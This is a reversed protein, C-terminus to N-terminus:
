TSLSPFCSFDLGVGDSLESMKDLDGAVGFTSGLLCRLNDFGLAVFGSSLGAASLAGCFGGSVGVCGGFTILAHACINRSSPIIIM